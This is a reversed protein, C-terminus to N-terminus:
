KILHFKFMNEMDSSEIPDTMDIASSIGNTREATITLSM